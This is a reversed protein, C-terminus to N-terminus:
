VCCTSGLPALRKEHNNAGDDKHDTGIPWGVEGNSVRVCRLPRQYGGSGNQWDVVVREADLALPTGWYCDRGSEVQASGWALSGVNLPGYGQAPLSALAMVTTAGVVVRALRVAVSVSM